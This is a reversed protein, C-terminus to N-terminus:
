PSSIPLKTTTSSFIAGWTVASLPIFSHIVYTACLSSLSSNWKNVLYL